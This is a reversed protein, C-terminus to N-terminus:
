PAHEYKRRSDIIDGIATRRSEEISQETSGTQPAPIPAAQRLPRAGQQQKGELRRPQDLQVKVGGEQAPQGGPSEKQGSTRKLWKETEAVGHQCIVDYDLRPQYGARQAEAIQRQKEQNAYGGAVVSLVPDEFIEPNSEGIRKAAADMDRRDIAQDAIAHVDQPSVFQGQPQGQRLKSATDRMAESIHSGDGYALPDGLKNWDVNDLGPDETRHPQEAPRGGDGDAQQGQRQRQQGEQPPQDQPTPPGQQGYGVEQAYSQARQQLDVSANYNRQTADKVRYLGSLESQPVQRISGDEMPVDVMPDYPAEAPKPVPADAAGEAPPEGQRDDIDEGRRVGRM